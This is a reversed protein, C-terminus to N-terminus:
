IQKAKDLLQKWDIEDIKPVSPVVLEGSKNLPLTLEGLAPTDVSLGLDAKYPIKSGARVDKFARVLDLYGVKAPLSITKSQKAPIVSQIDADGAFLKDQGSFVTYDMNLLPLAVPYPNEIKVDFLLTAAELGVDQLKFGELSAKPKRAAFLDEVNECGLSLIIILACTLITISKFNRM